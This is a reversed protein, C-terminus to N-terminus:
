LPLKQAAFGTLKHEVYGTVTMTAATLFPFRGGNAGAVKEANAKWEDENESSDMLAYIGNPEKLDDVTDM